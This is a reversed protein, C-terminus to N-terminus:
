RNDGDGKIVGREKSDTLKMFNQQLVEQHTIDYSDLLRALYWFIDGLEAVKDEMTVGDGRMQKKCKGLFEGVENALGMILYQEELDIKKGHVTVRGVPYVATERTWEKYTEFDM